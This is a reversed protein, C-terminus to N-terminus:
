PPPAQQPAADSPNLGQGRPPVQAPACRRRTIVKEKALEVVQVALDPSLAHSPRRGRNGHALAAAGVAAYRRRLRRVQGVSIGRLNAAQANVLAGSLLHNLV